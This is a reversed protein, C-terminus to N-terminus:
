KHGPLIGKLKDAADNVAKQGEAAAKDVAKKGEDIIQKGAKEVTGKANAIVETPVNGLDGLAKLKGQLDGLVDAPLLGDGKEAAASLVAKVVINTLEELTVGSGAVGSGTKGVDKLRISDIPITVSTLDKVADPGDVLSAHITVKEIDLDHIIFKKEDKSAPPPTSTKPAGNGGGTVQQMHDLIQGYNTKGDRKELNVDLNSLSFKPLEVTSQNLTSLSVDVGGNGLTLFHPSKFSGAPNAVSLGSLSFKGSVVGVSVSSVSTPTGLAYTGGEQIASKAISDIAFFAVVVGALLLFFVVGAVLLLKKLM